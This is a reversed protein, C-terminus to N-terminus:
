KTGETKKNGNSDVLMIGAEQDLTQMLDKVKVYGKTISESLNNVENWMRQLRVPGYGFKDRLVSFMIAWAYNVAESTAERKAKRLDAETVPRKNPNIKQKKGM